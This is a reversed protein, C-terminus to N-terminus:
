LTKILEEARKRDPFDKKEDLLKQLEAKADSKRGSKILAEVVHM